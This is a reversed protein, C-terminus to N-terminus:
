PQVGEAILDDARAIGDGTLMRGSKTFTIFGKESLRREQHVLNVEQLLNRIQAEGMTQGVNRLLVLYRQQTRDLGDVTMGARDLVTQVSYGDEDYMCDIAQQILQKIRRPNCDGAQVFVELDALPPLPLPPVVKGAYECAIATAEEHTYPMLIPKISFRDTITEPLKGVDTTAAIVTINLKREIGTPGMLVGDQLLHLLWEAKAKNGNVLRHVEDVFLVDGDYMAMILQRVQTANPTGSITFCRTDLERAILIALASKGCGPQGSAILVHRLQEGRVKARTIAARLMAKADEQGIYADWSQPYQPDDLNAPAVLQTTGGASRRKAREHWINAVAGGLARDVPQMLGM